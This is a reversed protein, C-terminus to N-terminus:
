RDRERDELRDSTAGLRDEEAILLKQLQALRTSDLESDLLARFRMVNQQTVYTLPGDMADDM